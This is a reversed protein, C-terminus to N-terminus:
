ERRSTNKTEIPVGRNRGSTGMSSFLGETILGMLRKAQPLRTAPSRRVELRRGVLVGIIVIGKARLTAARAIVTM